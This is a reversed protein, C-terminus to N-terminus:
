EPVGSLLPRRESQKGLFSCPSPSARLGEPRHAGRLHCAALGRADATQSFREPRSGPLPLQPAGGEQGENKSDAVMPRCETARQDPSRTFHDAVSAEAGVLGRLPTCRPATPSLTALGSSASLICLNQPRNLLQRRLQWHGASVDAYRHQTPKPKPRGTYRLMTHREQRARGTHQKCGGSANAGTGRKCDWSSPFAM